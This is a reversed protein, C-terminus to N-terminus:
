YQVRLKRAEGHDALGDRVIANDLFEAAAAHAHDVLGLIGPQMAEDGELEQRIINSFIRL